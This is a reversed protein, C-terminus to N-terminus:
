APEAEDEFGARDRHLVQPRRLRDGIQTLLIVTAIIALTPLIAPWPSGVLVSDTAGELMNGWSPNPEQIGFVGPMFSLSTEVLIIFAWLHVLHRMVLHRCQLWLIHYGLLRWGSVGDARASEVYEERSCTGVRRRIDEGLEAAYLVGAVGALLFPDFGWAALVLLISVFRPLTGPIALVFAVVGRLPRLLSVTWRRARYADTAPEYGSVAGLTVGVVLAIAAAVFGPLFFGRSACMSRGLLDRGMWDTGLPHAMSAGSLARSLDTSLASECPWVLGALGIACFVAFLIASAYRALVM